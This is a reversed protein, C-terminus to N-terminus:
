FDDDPTRIFRRVVILGVFASLVGGVVLVIALSDSSGGSPRQTATGSPSASASQSPSASASASPSPSAPTATGRVAVTFTAADPDDSLVNISALRLGEVTPTMRITFPISEGPLLTKPMPPLGALAFDAANEGIIQIATIKLAAEGENSVTITTPKGKKGVPSTGVDVPNPQVLVNPLVGTGVLVVSIKPQGCANSSIDLSAKRLGGGTPQFAVTITRIDGPAITFPVTPAGVIFDAPNTGTRAVASVTLPDLGPNRVILTKTPSRTGVRQDGFAVTSADTAIRRDIGTGTVTVDEAPTDPDNSNIRFNGDRFGRQSPTFTVSFVATKTPQITLPLNLDTREFDAADSGGSRVISTVELDADPSSGSSDNKITVAKAASATDVCLSGFSLSLPTVVINPETPPAAAVVSLAVIWAGFLAAALRKRKM